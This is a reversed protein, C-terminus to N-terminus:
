VSHLLWLFPVLPSLLLISSIFWIPHWLSLGQIAIKIL